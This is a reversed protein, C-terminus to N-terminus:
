WVLIVTRLTCKRCSQGQIRTRPLSLSTLGCSLALMSVPLWRKLENELAMSTSERRQSLWGARWKMEEVSCRVCSASSPARKRVWRRKVGRQLRKSLPLLPPPLRSEVYPVRSKLALDVVAVALSLVKPPNLPVCQSKKSKVSSALLELIWTLHNQFTLPPQVGAALELSSQLWGYILTM